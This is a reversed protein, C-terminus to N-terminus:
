VRDIVKELQRSIPYDLIKLENYFLENLKNITEPKLKNLHDGAKVNRMFSKPDEKDVKFSTSSIIQNLQEENGSIGLFSNLRRIWPGFQSIMDEYRLFLVNQKNLLKTCYAEYNKQMAPAIELVYDDISYDAYRKRDNYLAKNSLPHNYLTSFYFSTLVDRPDRLVLIIKFKEMDPFPYYARFAGFFYGNEKLVKKMFKPDNYYLEQKRKSLYASLRLSSINNAGVLKIITNKIFTSASKHVTFFLISQQKSKSKKKLGNLILFENSFYVPRLFSLLFLYPRLLISGDKQVRDQLKGQTKKILRKVM